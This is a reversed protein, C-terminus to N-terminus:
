FVDPWATPSGCPRRRGRAAAGEVWGEEEREQAAGGRRRGEGHPVWWTRRLSISFIRMRHCFFVAQRISTMVWFFFLNFSSLLSFINCSEKNCSHVSGYISALQPVGQSTFQPQMPCHTCSIGIISLFVVPWPWPQKSPPAGRSCPGHGDSNWKWRLLMWVMSTVANFYILFILNFILVLKATAPAFHTQVQSSPSLPSALQVSPTTCSASSM